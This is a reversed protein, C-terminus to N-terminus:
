IYRNNYMGDHESGFDMLSLSVGGVSPNKPGPLAPATKTRVYMDMFAMDNDSAALGTYMYKDASYVNPVVTMDPKWKSDVESTEPTSCNYSAPTQRTEQEHLGDIPVSDDFAVGRNFNGEALEPSYTYGTTFGSKFTGVAPTGVAYKDRKHFVLPMMGKEMGESAASKNQNKCYILLLCAVILVGILIETDSYSM